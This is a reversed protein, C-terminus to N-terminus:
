DEPEPLLPVSRRVAHPTGTKYWELGPLTLSVGEYPVGKHRGTRAFAPTPGLM